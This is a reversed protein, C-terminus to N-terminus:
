VFVSKPIGDSVKTFNEPDLSIKYDYLHLFGTEDNAMIFNVFKNTESQSEPNLFHILNHVKSCILIYSTIM